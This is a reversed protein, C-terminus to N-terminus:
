RDYGLAKLIKREEQRMQEADTKSHDDFGLLHLIGHVVYLVIEPEIASQYRKANRVAAAASIVIEGEIDKTKRQSDKLDFSLVDTTYERKLYRKNLAKIRQDSVLALSLHARKVKKYLLTKKAARIIRAPNISIQKQLNEITIKMDMKRKPINSAVM